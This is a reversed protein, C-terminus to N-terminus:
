DEKIISFGAATKDLRYIGFSKNPTESELMCMGTREIKKVFVKIKNSGMFEYSGTVSRFCDNGCSASYNTSFTSDTFTIFNGWGFYPDASSNQLLRYATISDASFVNFDSKWNIGVLESKLIPDKTESQSFSVSSAILALILFLSKLMDIKLQYLLVVFQNM